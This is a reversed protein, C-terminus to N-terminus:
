RESRRRCRPWTAAARPASRRSGCRTRRSSQRPRQASKAARFEAELEGTKQFSANIADDHESRSDDTDESAGGTVLANHAQRHESLKLTLEDSKLM